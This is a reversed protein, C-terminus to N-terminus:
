RWFIERGEVYKAKVDIEQNLYVFRELRDSISHKEPEGLRSDDLVLADFAYGSEFSGVRGFFAGGGKTAMYFVEPITLPAANEKMLSQRLKSAQIAHMMASFINETTGGAIDSGLGVAIGEELYTRVPAIGSALNM